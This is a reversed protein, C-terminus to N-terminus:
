KLEKLIELQSESRIVKHPDGEKKRLYIKGNTAWAFAYNENKAFERTLYFLRRTKFTLHESLYIPKSDSNSDICSTNLTNPKHKRNYDKVAKLINTRVQPTTVDVVVVSSQKSKNSLRYIDRITNQELDACLTKGIKLVGQILDNRSENEKHPLNRIDIKTLCSLRELEEIREELMLMKESQDKKTKEMNDIKVMMDDYQKSVFGISRKIEDNAEQIDAFTKQISANQAKVELVDTSIKALMERIELKFVQMDDKLEDHSPQRRRKTRGTVQESVGPVDSESEITQTDKKLRDPSRMPKPMSFLGIIALLQPPYEALCNDIRGISAYCGALRACNPVIFLALTHSNRLM